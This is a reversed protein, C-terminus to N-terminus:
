ESASVDQYLRCHKEIDKKEEGCKYRTMGDCYSIPVNCKACKEYDM